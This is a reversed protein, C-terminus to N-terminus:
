SLILHLNTKRPEAGIPLGQIGVTRPFNKHIHLTLSPPSCATSLSHPCSTVSGFCAVNSCIYVIYQINRVYTSYLPSYATLLNLPFNTISGYIHM